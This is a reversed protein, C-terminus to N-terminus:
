FEQECDGEFVRRANFTESYEIYRQPVAALTATLKSPSTRALFVISHSEANEQSAIMLSNESTVVYETGNSLRLKSTAEGAAATGDISFEGFNTRVQSPPNGVFEIDFTSGVCEEKNECVENLFCPEAYAASTLSALILITPIKM